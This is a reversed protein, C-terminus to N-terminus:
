QVGKQAASLKALALRAAQYNPDLELAAEYQAGAKDNNGASRYLDGLQCHLGPDHPRMKSQTTLHRVRDAFAIESQLVQLQAKAEEAREARQYAKVLNARVEIDGRNALLATELHEVAETSRGARLDLIGLIAHAPGHRSDSAIAQEALDRAQKLDDPTSSQMKARSLITLADPNSPAVSLAGRCAAEMDATQNLDSTVNALLLWATLLKPELKVALRLEPVAVEAPATRLLLQARIFHVRGSLKDAAARNLLERVRKLRGRKLELEALACLTVTNNPALAVAKEYAASAARTHGQLSELDGLSLWAQPDDPTLRCGEQMLREADAGRQLKLYYHGLQYRLESQNPAAALNQELTSVIQLDRQTTAQVDSVPVSLRSRLALAAALTILGLAAIKILRRPIFTMEQRSITLTACFNLALIEAM